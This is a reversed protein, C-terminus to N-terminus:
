SNYRALRAPDHLTIRKGQVSILGAESLDHFIRSLTEPTLNLRSAIVQKSTPLAIECPTDSDAVQLLYGIVRQMSSRLSYTEVDQVLSHLRIAMGALLKHAFTSDQDILETVVAQGVHILVSDTLAEAFVPYPRNMFMVAEGFSQLAGVIEVVKETGQPSSFALKIQGSVVFYFGHPQDGRQFLVEGRAVHRDRTYRSVRQIDAESLESFLPIRHLFSSIDLTAHHPM